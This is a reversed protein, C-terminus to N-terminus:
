TIKKFIIQHNLFLVELDDKFKNYCEIIAIIPNDKLEYYYFWLFDDCILIGDKELFKMANIFDKKVDEYFHSGDIYIVNFKNKNQSFFINSKDKILTTEANSRQLNEYCNKYVLNFDISKHEDSGEFTDVCTIEKVNKLEGVFVASRGEFSGIELYNIDRKSSLTKKWINFNKSFWDDYNFSYKKDFFEKESTLSPKFETFYQSSIIKFIFRFSFKTNVKKITKFKKYSYKFAYCFKVIKSQRGGFCSIIIKKFTM